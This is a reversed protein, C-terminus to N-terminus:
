GDLHDRIWSEVASMRVISTEGSCDGLRSGSVLGVLIVARTGPKYGFIPVGSDGHCAVLDLIATSTSPFATRLHGTNMRLSTVSSAGAVDFGVAFVATKRQLWRDDSSALELIVSLHREPLACIAVDFESSGPTSRPHALCSALPLHYQKDAPAHVVLTGQKLVADSRLCHAPLLLSRQGVLAGQCTGARVVPWTRADVGKGRPLAIATLTACSLVIATAGSTLWRSMCM